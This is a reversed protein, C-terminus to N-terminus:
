EDGFWSSREDQYASMQVEPNGPFVEGVVRTTEEIRDPDNIVIWAHDLTAERLEQVIVRLTQDFRLRAHGTAFVPFAVSRCNAETARLLANAVCTRVIEASSHHRADSAVCHIIAKAPLDGATTLYASGAPLHTNGTRRFEAGVIAECARLITFGGRSRVSGGTGMALSLRPNTSTCLAEAPVDCLDGVFITLKV